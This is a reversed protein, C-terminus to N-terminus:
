VLGRYPYWGIASHAVRDLYLKVVVLVPNNILAPSWRYRRSNSRKQRSSIPPSLRPFLHGNCFHKIFFFFVYFLFHRRSESYRRWSWIKNVVRSIRSLALFSTLGLTLTSLYTVQFTDFASLWQISEQM